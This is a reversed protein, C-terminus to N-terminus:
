AGARAPTERTRRGLASHRLDQAVQAAPDRGTEPTLLRAVRLSGAHRNRPGRCAASRLVGGIFMGIFV